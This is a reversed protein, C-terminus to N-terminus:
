NCHPVGALGNNYLDLLAAVQVMACGIPDAGGGSCSTKRKDTKVDSNGILNDAETILQDVTLGNYPNAPNAPDSVPVNTSSGEAKNLKAAILQIALIRIANGTSRSDLVCLLECQDYARAGLNITDTPDCPCQKWPSNGGQACQGELNDPIGNHNADTSDPTGPDFPAPWNCPHNKWYGPTLTCGKPNGQVEVTFNCFAESPCCGSTAHFVISHTGVNDLGPTWTITTCVPNGSTPLPPNAVAGPIELLGGELFVPSGCTPDSACVQFTLTQGSTVILTSGCEPTPAIFGVKCPPPPNSSSTTVLVAALALALSM